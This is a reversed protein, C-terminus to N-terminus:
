QSGDAGKRAAQSPLFAGTSSTMPPGLRNEIDAQQRQRYASRYTTYPDLSSRRMEDVPDILAERSDVLGMGTRAYRLGSAAEGPGLLTAIGAAGDAGSGALDRLTTPGALPLFLYPGEGVRWAALTQGFDESHRPVGFWAEAPDFIGALGVTTNLLFRGLTDGARRPQGQLMDNVLAAPSRPNNLLDRCPRRVPRPIFDRYGVAVPKTM